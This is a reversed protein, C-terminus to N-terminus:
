SLYLYDWFFSCILIPHLRLDFTFARILHHVTIFMISALLPTPNTVVFISIPPTYQSSLLSLTPWKPLLLGPLIYLFIPIYTHSYPPPPPTFVVKFFFVYPAPNHSKLCINPICIWFPISYIELFFVLSIITSQRMFQHPHLEPFYLPPPPPTVPRKGPLVM